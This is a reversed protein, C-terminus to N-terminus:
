IVNKKRRKLTVYFGLESGIGKCVSMECLLLRQPPFATAPFLASKLAFQWLSLAINKGRVVWHVVWVHQVVGVVVWLAV